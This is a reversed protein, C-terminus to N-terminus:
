RRGRRFMGFEVLLALGVGAVAVLLEDLGLAPDRDFLAAAVANSIVLAAIILVALRATRSTGESDDNGGTTFTEESRSASAIRESSIAHETPSDRVAERAPTRSSTLGLLLSVAFLAVGLPVHIVTTVPSPVAGLVEQIWLAVPLIAAGIAVGRSAHGRTRQVLAVVTPALAFYPLLWGVIMHATRADGVGSLFLGALVAQTLVGAAVVYFLVALAKSRRSPDVTDM